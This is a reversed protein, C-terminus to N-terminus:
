RTTAFMGSLYSFNSDMKNIGVSKIFEMNKIDYMYLTWDSLLYLSDGSIIMQEAGHSLPFQLIEKTELDYVCIKGGTRQVADYCSIYLKNQYIALEWPNIQNLEISKFSKEKINFSNITSTPNDYSDSCSTFYIVDDYVISKYQNTGYQTIDIEEIKNLEEDFIYLFSSMGGNTSKGTGFAYISTGAYILTSIYTGPIEAITVSDDILDYRNIYSVGNLNNCTYISTDNVTISNMAIQEITFQKIALDTLDIELVKKEDKRNAIGQPIIYLRNDYVVPTSFISGVTAFNLPLEGIEEMGKDFFIIRSKKENGRTEIIGLAIDTTEIDIKHNSSCGVLSSVLACVIVWILFKSKM